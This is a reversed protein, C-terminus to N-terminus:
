IFRLLESIFPYIMTVHGEGEYKCLKLKFAESAFPELRRHLEEADILMKGHDMEVGILLAAKVEGSEVQKTFAPLWEYLIHNKWWISPSGAIYTQFAQPKLLMTRIAYYGGLSHGFLSQRSRDIPLLQEICPKLEEEIFAAFSEAGGNEPWESGDPRSRLEDTSAADTYDIFRHRTVIPGEDDYGIGVVVQPEIGHPKRGQLRMAEAISAFTANADLTYLVPYGNEPPPVPPVSIFIRYETGTKESKLIRQQTRPVEYGTAQRFLLPFSREANKGSFINEADGAAAPFLWQMAKAFNSAMYCADHTGGADLSFCFRDAEIGRERWLEHVALSAPVMNRQINQKYIGECDGVSMYIRQEPRPPEHQQVYELVGEYWFSASLLGLKGFVDPRWVGALLSVLGGFSGGIVATHEAEPKTRYQGDIHKKCVDALEDIYARAGGGCPPIDKMLSDAQWPTYEENRDHSVVGVYITEQLMNSAVLHQLQNYCSEMLKGGDQVYVVPYSRMSDTYYSFPLCVLLQRGAVTLRELPIM